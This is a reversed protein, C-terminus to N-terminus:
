VLSRSRALVLLSLGRANESAPVPALDAIQVAILLTSGWVRQRIVFALLAIVNIMAAGFIAM